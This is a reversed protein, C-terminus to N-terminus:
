FIDSNRETIGAASLKIVMESNYRQVETVRSDATIHLLTNACDTSSRPLFSDM